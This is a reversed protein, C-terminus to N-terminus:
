LDMNKPADSGPGFARSKVGKVVDRAVEHSVENFDPDLTFWIALACRQGYLVPKVGHYHGSEFMVMRGCKPKVSSQVSLNQHAFFFDGGLFDNNLYLLASYDRETYAPSIRQCTKDKQMICNDAHIPHSLDSRDLNADNMATRCVLHTFSYHLEKKSGLMVMRVVEKLRSSVALFLEVDEATIKHESALKAADELNLGGFKENITHPSHYLNKIYGDGSYGAVNTIRILSDCEEEMAVGDVAYREDELLDDGNYSVRLSKEKLYRKAEASMKETKDEDDGVSINRLISRANAYELEQQAPSLTLFLSLFCKRGKKLKEFAHPDAIHTSITRGQKGFITARSTSLKKVDENKFYFLGDNKDDLYLVSVFDRGGEGACLSSHECDGKVVDEARRDEPFVQDREWNTCYLATTHFMLPVDLNLHREYAKRMKEAVGMLVVVSRESAKGEKAFEAARSVTLYKLKDREGLNALQLLQKVEKRDAVGDMVVRRGGLEETDMTVSIGISQFFKTFSLIFSSDKPLYIEESQHTYTKLSKAKNRKNLEGDCVEKMGQLRKISDHFTRADKRPVFDEEKLGAGGGDAHLYYMKNFLHDQDTPVHLLLTAVNIAAKKLQDVQYYSYQLYHFHDLYYRQVLFGKQLALNGSCSQACSLSISWFEALCMRVPDKEENKTNNNNNNNDNVDNNKINNDKNKNVNQLCKKFREENFVTQCEISCLEHEKYYELLAAEMNSISAEWDEENHTQIAKQRLAQYYKEEVNKFWAPNSGPFDQYYQVNKSAYHHNPRNDAFTYAATFSEEYKELRFACLQIFDYPEYNSFRM